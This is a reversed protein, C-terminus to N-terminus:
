RSLTAGSITTNKIRSDDSITGTSIGAIAEDEEEDSEVDHGCGVHMLADIM